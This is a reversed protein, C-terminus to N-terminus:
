MKIRFLDRPMWKWSFLFAILGLLVTYLVYSWKLPLNAWVATIIHWIRDLVAVWLAFHVLWRLLWLINHGLESGLHHPPLKWTILTGVLTFIIIKTVLSLTVPRDLWVRTATDWVAQLVVLWPIFNITLRLWGSLASKGFAM